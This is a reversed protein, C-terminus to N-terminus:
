HAILNNAKNPVASLEQTLTTGNNLPKFKPGFVTHTLFSNM